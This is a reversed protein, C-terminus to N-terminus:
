FRHFGINAIPNSFMKCCPVEKLVMNKEVIASIKKCTAYFLSSNCNPIEFYHIGFHSFIFCFRFHRLPQMRIYLSILTTFINLLFQCGTKLKQKGINAWALGANLITASSYM